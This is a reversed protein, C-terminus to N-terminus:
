CNAYQDICKKLTSSSIPKVFYENAGAKLSAERYKNGFATNIIIPTKSNIKTKRISECVAVGTMDPLGVDLFVLDFPQSKAKEIASKGNESLEVTCNFKLLFTIMVTQVMDNDEVLLIKTKNPPEISTKTGILDDACLKKCAKKFCNIENMLHHFIEESKNPDHDISHQLEKLVQILRDGGVYVASGSLKHALDRIKNWNQDDFYTVFEKKYGTLLTEFEALLQQAVSSNGSFCNLLNELNIIKRTNTM